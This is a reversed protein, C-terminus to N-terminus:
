ELGALNQQPVDWTPALEIAQTFYQGAAEGNGQERAIVGLNNFLRAEGGYRQWGDLLIAEAEESAERGIM